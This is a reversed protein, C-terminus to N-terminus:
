SFIKNLKNNDNDDDADDDDDSKSTKSVHMETYDYCNVLWNNFDDDSNDL